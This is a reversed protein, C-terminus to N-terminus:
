PAVKWLRMTGDHSGSLAHRGGPAFAVSWIPHEHGRLERVQAGTELDWIRLLKDYGGSVAWKGDPSVAVATVKDTHGKLTHLCKLTKMDWVRLLKDDGGTLLRTGDRTLSVAPTLRNTRSNSTFGGALDVVMPESSWGGVVCQGDGVLALSFCRSGVSGGRLPKGTAVEWEQVHRDLGGSVLRKGGAAFVVCRVADTHKKLQRVETLKGADALRVTKDESGTAILKGDPSVAVCMVRDAHDDSHALQKGTALDWLRVARSDTSYARKGDPSFAVGNVSGAKADFVRVEHFTDTEIKELLRKASRRVEADKSSLARRLERLAPAGIKVLRAAAADREAKTDAGLQRILAPVESKGPAAYLALVVLLAGM